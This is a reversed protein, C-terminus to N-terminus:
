KLKYKDCKMVLKMDFLIQYRKIYNDALFFQLNYHFNMRKFFSNHNRLFFQEM